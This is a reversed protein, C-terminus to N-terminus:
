QFIFQSPITSNKPNKEEKVLDLFKAQAKDFSNTSYNKNALFINRESNNKPTESKQPTPKENLEFKREISENQMEGIINNKQDKPPDKKFDDEIQTTPKTLDNAKIQNFNISDNIKNLSDTDTYKTSNQNQSKEDFQLDNNLNSNM